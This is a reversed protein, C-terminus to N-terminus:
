VIRQSIVVLNLESFKSRLMDVVDITGQESFCELVEDLCLYSCNTSQKEVAMDRLALRISLDLRGMQGASLSQLSQGKRDTNKMTLNFEEDFEVDLILDLSQLYKNVNRNLLPLYVRVVDAKAESDGCLMIADNLAEIDRQQENHEEQLTLYSSNLKNFAEQKEKLIESHQVSEKLYAEKCDDLEKEKAELNQKCRNVSDEKNKVLMDLDKQLTDEVNKIREEINQVALEYVNNLHTLKGGHEGKMALKRDEIQQLINDKRSPASKVLSDYDSQVAGLAEKAKLEATDIINQLENCELKYTNELSTLSAEKQKELNLLEIEQMDLNNKLNNYHNTFVQDQTKLDDVKKEATQLDVLLTDLSLEEVRKQEKEIRGDYCSIEGVIYDVKEQISAKCKEIWESSIHQKCTPCEGESSLNNINEQETGLKYEFEQKVKELNNITTLYERSLKDAENYVEEAKNKEILAYTIDEDIHHLDTHLEKEKVTLNDVIIKQDSIKKDYDSELSQKDDVYKNEVEGLKEKATQITTETDKTSEEKKKVLNNKAYDIESDILNFDSNLKVLVSDNEDIVFEGLSAIDEDLKVKLLHKETSLDTVKQSSDVKLELGETDVSLAEELLSTCDGLATELVETRDQYVNESTTIAEHAYEQEQEALAVKVRIDNIRALTETQANNVKSRENKLDKLLSSFICVDFIPELLLRRESASLTLFGKFNDGGLLITSNLITKAYARELGMLEYLRDQRDRKSVPLDKIEQWENDVLKEITFIDPKRGRTVKYYTGGFHWELWVVMNKNNTSNILCDVNEGSHSSEGTIAYYPLAKYLTSKGAGNDQSIILRNNIDTFDVVMEKDIAKFNSCGARLLMLKSTIPVQTINKM